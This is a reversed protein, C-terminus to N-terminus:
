RQQFVSNERMEPYAKYIASVLEPFTLRRVFKSCRRIYDRAAQDIGTLAAKGAELGRPTLAYSRFSFSRYDINVHGQEALSELVIYVKKDFPGYHHPRFAFFPGGILPGLERDILFFLKQVQAPSHWAGRAPSMAALVLTEQDM